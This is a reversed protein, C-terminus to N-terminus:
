RRLFLRVSVKERRFHHSDSDKTPGKVRHMVTV